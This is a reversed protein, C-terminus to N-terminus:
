VVPLAGFHRQVTELLKQKSVPKILFDKVGKGRLLSVLELDPYGTLAIVPIEGAQQM